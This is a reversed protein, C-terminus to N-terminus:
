GVGDRMRRRYLGQDQAADKQAAPRIDVIEELAIGGFERSVREGHRRGAGIQVKRRSPPVEDVDNRRFIASIDDLPQGFGKEEGGRVSASRSRRTFAAEAQM